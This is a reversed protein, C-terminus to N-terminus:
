RLGVEVSVGAQHGGISAGVAVRREARQQRAGLIAVVVGTVLAAGGVGFLVSSALQETHGTHYKAADYAQGDHSARTLDDSAQKALAGMAGGVIVGAAGVVAVAVGAILM